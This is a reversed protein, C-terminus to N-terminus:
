TTAIVVTPAQRATAFREAEDRRVRWRARCRGQTADLYSDPTDSVAEGAALQAAQRSRLEQTRMAVERLYRPSVGALAAAQPLSLLDEPQGPGPAVGRHRRSREARGASGRTGVLQAATRPHQGLLIRRLEDPDV